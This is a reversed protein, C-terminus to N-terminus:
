IEINTIRRIVFFGIVQLLFAVGLLAQGFPDRLMRLMYNPQFLSMGAAAVIPAAGLIYGTIRGQATKTRVQRRFRFRERIMDGLKELNEVLNGGAERQVLVATVFMRVDMLDVREALNLLCEKMPLGYRQQEFVKRLETSVPDEVEESAIRLSHSFAQGSKISRALVQIAEPFGEEFREKRKRAERKLKLPILFSGVGAGALSLASGGTLVWVLLGVIGGLCVSLTILRSVPWERGAQELLLEMQERRPVWQALLGRLGGTEARRQERINHWIRSKPDPTGRSRAYRDLIGDVKNRYKIGKIGQWILYLACIGLALIGYFVSLQLWLPNGAVMLNIVM